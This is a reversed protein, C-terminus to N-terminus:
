ITMNFEKRKKNNKKSLRAEVDAKAFVNNGFEPSTLPDSMEFLDKFNEALEKDSM